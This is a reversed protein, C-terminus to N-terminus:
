VILECVATLDDLRICGGKVALFIGPLPQNLGLAM